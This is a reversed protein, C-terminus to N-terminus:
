EKLFECKERIFLFIQSSNSYKMEDRKFLFLILTITLFFTRIEVVSSLLQSFNYIMRIPHPQSINDQILLSM